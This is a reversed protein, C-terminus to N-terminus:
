QSDRIIQGSITVEGIHEFTSEISVVVESINNSRVTEEIVIDFDDELDDISLERAILVGDDDLDEEDINFGTDSAFANVDNIGTKYNEYTLEAMLYMRNEIQSTRNLEYISSGLRTVFVLMLGFIMFAIIVEMYTFGSENYIYTSKNNGESM